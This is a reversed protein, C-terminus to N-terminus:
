TGLICQSEATGRRKGYRKAIEIDTVQSVGITWTCLAFTACLTRWSTRAAMGLEHVAPPMWANSRGGPAAVPLHSINVVYLPHFTQSNM